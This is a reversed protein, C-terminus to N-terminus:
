IHILSLTLVNDDDIEFSEVKEEKFLTVVDSYKLSDKQGSGFMRSVVFIILGIIVVYAILAKLNSHSRKNM